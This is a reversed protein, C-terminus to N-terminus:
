RLKRKFGTHTPVFGLREYFRHADLRLKNSTLQVMGCGRERCEELAWRVMRAGLGQSRLHSVIHVSELLGVRLVQRLVRQAGQLVRM